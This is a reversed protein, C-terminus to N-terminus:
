GTVRNACFFIIVTLTHVKARVQRELAMTARHHNGTTSQRATASGRDKKYRRRIAPVRGM